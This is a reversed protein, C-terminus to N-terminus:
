LMTKKFRLADELIINQSKGYASFTANRVYWNGMSM